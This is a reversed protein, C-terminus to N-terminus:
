ISVTNVEPCAPAALQANKGTNGKVTLNKANRNGMFGIRMPIRKFLRTKKIKRKTTLWYRALFNM